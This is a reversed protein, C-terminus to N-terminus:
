AGPTSHSHSLPGDSMDFFTFPTSFWAFAAQSRDYMESFYADLVTLGLLLGAAGQPHRPEKRGTAARRARTRAHLGRCNVRSPGDYSLGTQM